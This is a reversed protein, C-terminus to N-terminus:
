RLKGLIEHTAFVRVQKQEKMGKDNSWIPIGMSLALALYPADEPHPAIKLADSYTKQYDTKAHSEINQTLLFWIEDIQKPSLGIRKRLKSNGLLHKRTEYVLYEPAHLKLRNDLLLERTVAAKMFGALLINADVVLEM